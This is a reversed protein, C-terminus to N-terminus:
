IILANLLLIFLNCVLIYLLSAIIIMVYRGLFADAIVGGVLPLLAATGSWVNVNEAATATSQGLPGTLYMILNSSVGYYAFREAVEVSIIFYSSRWCGSKSRLVRRKKYDVAGDVFDSLLPSEIGTTTSVDNDSM